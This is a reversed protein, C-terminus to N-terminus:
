IHLRKESLDRKIQLNEEAIVEKLQENVTLKLVFCYFYFIGLPILIFVTVYGTKIGLIICIIFPIIVVVLFSIIWAIKKEKIFIYVMYPTFITVAIIALIITIGSAYVLLLLISSSLEYNLYKDLRSLYYRESSILDLDM